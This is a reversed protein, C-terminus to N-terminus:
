QNSQKIPRFSFDFCHVNTSNNVANVSLVLLILTEKPSLGVFLSGCFVCQITSIILRNNTYTLQRREDRDFQTCLIYSLSFKQMYYLDLEFNDYKNDDYLSLKSIRLLRMNAKVSEILYSFRLAM